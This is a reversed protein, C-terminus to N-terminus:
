RNHPAGSRLVWGGPGALSARRGRLGGDGISAGHGARRLKGGMIWRDDPSRRDPLRISYETKDVDWAGPIGPLEAQCGGPSSTGNGDLHGHEGTTESAHDNGEPRGEGAAAAAPRAGNGAEYGTTQVVFVLQNSDQM